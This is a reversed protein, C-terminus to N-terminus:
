KPTYIEFQVWELRRCAAFAETEKMIKQSRAFRGRIQENFARHVQWWVRSKPMLRPDALWPEVRAILPDATDGKTKWNFYNFLISAAHVRENM